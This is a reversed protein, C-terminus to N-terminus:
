TGGACAEELSAFETGEEDLELREGRRINFYFKPM